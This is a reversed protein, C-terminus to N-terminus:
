FSINYAAGYASLGRAEGANLTLSSGPEFSYTAQLDFFRSSAGSKEGAANEEKLTGGGVQIAFPGVKGAVALGLYDQSWDATTFTFGSRNDGFIAEGLLPLDPSWTFGTDYKGKGFKVTWDGVPATLRVFKASSDDADSDLMELDVTVVDTAVKLYIDLFGSDALTTDANFGPRKVIGITAPGLNASGGFVTYDSTPNSGGSAPNSAENRVFVSFMEDTYTVDIANNDNTAAWSNLLGSGSTPEFDGMTVKIKGMNLWVHQHQALVSSGEDTGELRVYAGANGLEGTFGLRIRHDRTQQKENVTNDWGATTLTGKNQKVGVRFRASGDVSIDALAPLALASALVIAIAKKM